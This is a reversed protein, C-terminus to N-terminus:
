EQGGRTRVQNSSSTKGRMSTLAADSPSMFALVLSAVAASRPSVVMDRGPRNPQTMYTAVDSIWTGKSASGKSNMVHALLTRELTILGHAVLQTHAVPADEV